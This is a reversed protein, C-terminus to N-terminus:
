IWDNRSYHKAHVDWVCWTNAIEILFDVSRFGNSADRTFYVRGPQPTKPTISRYGV